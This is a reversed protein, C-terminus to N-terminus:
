MGNNSSISFSVDDNLRVREKSEAFQPLPPRPTDTSSESHYSNLAERPSTFTQVSSRQVGRDKRVIERMVPADVTEESAPESLINGELEGKKEESLLATELKVSMRPTADFSFYNTAFRSLSHHRQLTKRRSENQIKMMEASYGLSAKYISDVFGAIMPIGFFDKINRDLAFKLVGSKSYAKAQYLRLSVRDLQNPVILDSGDLVDALNESSDMCDTDFYERVTKEVRQILENLDPAKLPHNEATTQLCSHFLLLYEIAVVPHEKLLRKFILYLISETRGSGVKKLKNLVKIPFRHVTIVCIARFNIRIIDSLQEVTYDNGLKKYLYIMTKEDQMIMLLIDLHREAKLWKFTADDFDRKKVAAGNLLLLKIIDSYRKIIAHNLATLGNNDAVNLNAGEAILLSLIDYNGDMTAVMAATVSTRLHKDDIGSLKSELVAEILEIDGKNCAWILVTSGDQDRGDNFRSMDIGKATFFDSHNKQELDFEENDSL